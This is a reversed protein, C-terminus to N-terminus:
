PKRRWLSYSIIATLGLLLVGSAGVGLPLYRAPQFYLRLEIQGNREVESKLLEDIKWVNRYGPGVTHSDTLVERGDLRFVKWNESYTAAQIESIGPKVIARYETSSVRTVSGPTPLHDELQNNAYIDIEGFTAVQEYDSKDLWARIDKDKQYESVLDSSVVVYNMGYKEVFATLSEYDIDKQRVSLDSRTFLKAMDKQMEIPGILIEGIRYTEIENPLLVDLLHGQVNKVAGGWRYQEVIYSAPLVLVRDNHDLTTTLYAATDYWYEPISKVARDKFFTSAATWHPLNYLLSIALVSVVLTRALQNRYSYSLMFLGMLITLLLLPAAKTINRFVQFGFVNEYLYRYIPNNSGLMFQFIVLSIVILWLAALSARNKAHRILLLLMAVYPLLGLIGTAIRQYYPSFAYYLEGQWSGFLGWDTTQLMIRLFRAGFSYFDETIVGAFESVSGGYLSNTVIVTVTFILSPLFLTMITGARAITDKTLQQSVVKGYYISFIVTFLWVILLHTFNFSTAIITLGLLLLLYHPKKTEMYRVAWYLFAPLTLYPLLFIINSKLFNFVALSSFFTLSILVPLLVDKEGLDVVTLKIRLHQLLRILYHYGLVYFLGLVLFYGLGNGFILSAVFFLAYLTFYSVLQISHVGTFFNSNEVFLDSFYKQYDLSYVSSEFVISSRYYIANYLIPLLLLTLGLFYWFKAKSNKVMHVLSRSLVSLM